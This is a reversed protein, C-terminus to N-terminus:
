KQAVIFYRLVPPLALNQRNIIMTARLEDKRRGGQKQAKEGLAFVDWHNPDELLFLIDPASWFFALSEQSQRTVSHSLNVQAITVLVVLSEICKTSQIMKGYRIKLIRMRVMAQKVLCYFCMMLSYFWQLKRRFLPLRHCSM